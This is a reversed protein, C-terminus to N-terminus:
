KKRKRAAVYHDSHHAISLIHTIFDRLDDHSIEDYNKSNTYKWSIISKIKIIKQTQKFLESLYVTKLTRYNESQRLLTNMKIEIGVLEELGFTEIEASLGNICNQLDIFLIDNFERIEKGLAKTKKLM